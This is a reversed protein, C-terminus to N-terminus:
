ASAGSMTNNGAFIFPRWCLPLMSESDSSSSIGGIMAILTFFFRTNSVFLNIFEDLWFSNRNYSNDAASIHSRSLPSLFNRSSSRFSSVLNTRSFFSFCDCCVRLSFKITVCAFEMFLEFGKTSIGAARVFPDNLTVGAGEGTCDAWM